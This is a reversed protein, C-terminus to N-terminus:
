IKQTTNFTTDNVFDLYQIADQQIVDQKLLIYNLLKNAGRM